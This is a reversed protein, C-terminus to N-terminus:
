RHSIVGSQQLANLYYNKELPKMREFKAVINAARKKNNERERYCNGFYSYDHLETPKEYNFYVTERRPKGNRTQSMFSITNWGKLHSDYMDNKYHSVLVPADIKTVANLFREHDEKTMEHEYRTGSTRTELLYPPDCYVLDGKEWYSTKNADELYKIGCSNYIKIKNPHVGISTHSFEELQTYLKWIPDYYQCWKLFVSRDKEHAIIKKAPKVSRTIACHGLFPIILTEHPPIINIIQQPVGSSGKGGFYGDLGPISFNM